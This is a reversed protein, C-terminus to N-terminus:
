FPIRIRRFVTRQGSNRRACGSSQHFYQGLETGQAQFFHQGRGHSHSCTVRDFGLRGIGNLLVLLQDFLPRIRLFYEQGVKPFFSFGRDCALDKHLFVKESRQLLQYIGFLFRQFFSFGPFFSDPGGIVPEVFSINGTFNGASCLFLSAEDRFFVQGAPFYQKFFWETHIVPAYLDVFKLM